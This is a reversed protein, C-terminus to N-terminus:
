ELILSVTGYLDTSSLVVIDQKEATKSLENTFLSKNTGEPPRNELPEELFPNGVLIGKPSTCKKDEIYNARDKIM